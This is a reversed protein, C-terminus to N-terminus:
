LKGRGRQEVFLADSTCLVAGHEDEISAVVRCSKEEDKELKARVLVVNEVPVPRKFELTTSRTVWVPRPQSPDKVSIQMNAQLLRGSTEDLMTAVFGGHAATKLTTNVGPGIDYLTLLTEIPFRGQRLPLLCFNLDARITRESSLTEVIFLGVNGGMKKYEADRGTKDIPMVDKEAILKACWPIASFHAIDDALM